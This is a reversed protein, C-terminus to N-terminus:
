ANVKAQKKLRDGVHFSASFVFLLGLFVFYVGRDIVSAAIITHSDIHHLQQSFFLFSERIGLAGPTLSVFLALNAAGTYIIAQSLGVHKDVLRLEFYYVLVTVFVQLMTVVIVKGVQMPHKIFQKHRKNIFWGGGIAGVIVLILGATALAPSLGYGLLLLSAAGFVSYYLLTSITYSKVSVDHKKKLYLMRFGPGSQLPGFFNILSSYSTLLLSEFRSITRSCLEVSWHLIFTNTLLVVVYLGLLVLAAGLSVNRLGHLLEPKTFAYYAFLGLTAAVIVVGAIKRFLPSTFKKLVPPM